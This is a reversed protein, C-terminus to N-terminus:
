NEADRECIQSSFVGTEYHIDTQRQGMETNEHFLEPEVSLTKMINKVQIKFKVIFNYNKLAHCTYRASKHVHRIIYREATLTLFTKSSTTSFILVGSKNETYKCIYQRTHSLISLHLTLCNVSPLMIRPMRKIYQILLAIIHVYVTM